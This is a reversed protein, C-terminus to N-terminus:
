PVLGNPDCKSALDDVHGLDRVSVDNGNLRDERMFAQKSVRCPLRRFHVVRKVDHDVVTKCHVWLTLAAAVESVIARGASRSTEAQDESEEGM